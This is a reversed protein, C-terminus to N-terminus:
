PLAAADFFSPSPPARMEAAKACAQKAGATCATQYLDGAKARDVPVGRGHEVMVALNYCGAAWQLDCSREYLRAALADDKPVGHAYEHMQGAFMCAPGDKMDCAHEYLGTARAEDKDVGTGLAYTAALRRCRDASGADCERECAPVDPCSGLTNGITIVSASPAAREGGSAKGRDCAPLTM